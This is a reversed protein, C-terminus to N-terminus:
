WNVIPVRFSWGHKVAAEALDVKTSTIISFSTGENGVNMFVGNTFGNTSIAVGQQTGDNTSNAHITGMANWGNSSFDTDNIVLGPPITFIYNGTGAAAGTNDTHEYVGMCEIYEGDRAWWYSDSIKTNAKTPATTSADYIMYYPKRILPCVGLNIDGRGTQIAWLDEAAGGTDDFNAKFWGIEICDSDSGLVTNVLIKEVTTVSAHTATDDANLIVRHNPIAGVGYKLVSADNILYASLPYDTRDGYTGLGWHAATLLIDVDAVIKFIKGKGSTADGICAYGPNSESLPAWDRSTFRITDNANTTTVSKLGINYTDGVKMNLTEPLNKADLSTEVTNQDFNSSGNNWIRGVYRWAEYSHYFGLLSGRKDYPATESIVLDGDEDEYFYYMTSAAESQGSELDATVDWVKKSENSILKTGNVNITNYKSKSQVQTASKYELEFTNDDRVDVYFDEPRAGVTNDNEDQICMGVFTTSQNEWTASTFRYWKEDTLNFYMDGDSPSTPETTSYTPDTYSVIIAGTNKFYVYTKKMLTIVDNDSFATREIANGSSNYFCGRFAETLVGNTSDVKAIFYETTVGVVKFAQLTGTLATIESGITDIPIATGFEGLQETFNDDALDSDNIKATNNSTPPSTLNSATVDATFTYDVGDVYTILDTATALVKVQNSSGIPILYRAASSLTSVAGSSVRNNATGPGGSESIQGELTTIRAALADIETEYDAVTINDVTYILSDDSDKLVFKYSDVNLFIGNEIEGRSNLVIPNSNPTTGAQTTYTALLTTTGAEYTYLKGGVLPDGNSDFFQKKITPTHLKAM